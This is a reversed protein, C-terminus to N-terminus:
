RCTHQIPNAVCRRYAELEALMGLQQVYGMATPCAGAAALMCVALM